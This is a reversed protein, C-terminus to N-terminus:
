KETEGKQPLEELRSVIEFYKKLSEVIWFNRSVGTSKREREIVKLLSEPVRLPFSVNKEKKIKIM